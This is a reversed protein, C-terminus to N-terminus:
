RNKQLIQVQKEENSEKKLEDVLEKLNKEM